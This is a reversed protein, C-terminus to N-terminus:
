YFYTRTNLVIRASSFNVTNAVNPSLLYIKANVSVPYICGHSLQLVTGSKTLVTTGSPFCNVTGEMGINYCVIYQGDYIVGQLGSYSITTGELGVSTSCTASASPTTPYLLSLGGASTTPIKTLGDVYSGATSQFTFNVKYNTVDEPLFDRWNVLFTANNNTGGIKDQSSIVLSYTKKDFTM